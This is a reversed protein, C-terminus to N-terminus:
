ALSAKFLQARTLLIRNGNFYSNYLLIRFIVYTQRQPLSRYSSKKEGNLLPTIHCHSVFAPVEVTWALPCFVTRHTAMIKATLQVINVKFMRVGLSRVM